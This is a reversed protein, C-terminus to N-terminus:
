IRKVMFDHAALEVTDDLPSLETHGYKRELASLLIHDCLQPNKPLVPGHSYTGYTNKFHAGESGDEGNNGHGSLVLGLPSLSSSLYTRGSHNEFGVVVSDSANEVCRFKIDGTLREKAAETYMDLAGAFEVTKGQNTKFHRGMLQFGGCVTLFTVGDNVAARIERGSGRRLEEAMLEHEFDQGGGIVVLDFDSLKLASGVPVRTVSSEIGRWKLRKQMCLINGGDGYLNLIDPYLHCIKIEM